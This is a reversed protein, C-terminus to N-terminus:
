GKRAELERMRSLGADFADRWTEEYGRARLVELAAMAVGGETALGRVFSEGTREPHAGMIRAAGEVHVATLRRAAAPELGNAAAWDATRGVLDHTLTFAVALATVAAIEDEQRLPQVLGLPAFLAATAADDPYIATPSLGIECSTMPMARTIAPAPGAAARLKAITSGACTSVLVHGKRWPLGTVAEVAQPPRVCLLVVDSRAILDANSEAVSVRREAELAGTESGRPSLLLRDPALGAALYGRVLAGGLHGVGLIGIRGPLDGPASVETECGHSETM